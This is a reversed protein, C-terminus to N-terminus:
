GKPSRARAPSRGNSAATTAPPAEKPDPLRLLLRLHPAILEEIEQLAALPLEDPTDEHKMVGEGSLEPVPYEFSWATVAQALMGRLRLDAPITGTEACQLATLTGDESKVQEAARAIKMRVYRDIRTRDAGKLGTVPRYDVWGGDM